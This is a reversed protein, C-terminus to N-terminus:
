SRNLLLTPEKFSYEWVSVMLSYFLIPIIMRLARNSGNTGSTGLGVSGSVRAFAGTITNGKGAIEEHEKRASGGGVIQWETM